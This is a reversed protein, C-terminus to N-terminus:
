KRIVLIESTSFSVGKTITYLRLMRESYIHQSECIQRILIVLALQQQGTVCLYIKTFGMLTFTENNKPVNSASSVGEDEGESHGNEKRNRTVISCTCSYTYPIYTYLM